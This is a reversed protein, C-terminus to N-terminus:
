FYNFNIIYRRSANTSTCVRHWTNSNFILLKNEEAKIFKIKNKVKLETGGNCSNLYLIATNCNFNYDLHWGSKKFTDNLFLNARVQVVAKCGLNRLIPVIYDKFKDCTVTYNDYFYHTFYLNRDSDTMEGRIRWPFNEDFILHKLEKFIKEPLFNKHEKIINM